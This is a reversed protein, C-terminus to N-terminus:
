GAELSQFNQLYPPPPLTRIELHASEPISVIIIPHKNHYDNKFFFTFRDLFLFFFLFRLAQAKPVTAGYQGYM